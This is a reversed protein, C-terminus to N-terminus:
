KHHYQKPESNQQLLSQTRLHGSCSWSLTYMLYKYNEVGLIQPKVIHVRM